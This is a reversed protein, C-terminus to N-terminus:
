KPKSRMVDNIRSYGKIWNAKKPSLWEILEIINKAELSIDKKIIPEHHFIRNRFERISDCRDYLDEYSINNPLHQFSKPFDNWIEKKHSPLLMKVWFGFNLEAIMKGSTVKGKKSLKGDATKLIRKGDKKIQSFLSEEKWWSDGYKEIIKISITNRLSVEAASLIPYFAESILINWGYLKLAKEEDYGSAILYKSLRDNTIIDSISM